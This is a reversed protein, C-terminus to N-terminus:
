QRSNKLHIDLEDFVEKVWNYTELISYDEELTFTRFDTNYEEVYKKLEEKDAVPHGNITVTNEEIRVVIEDPIVEPAESAPEQPEQAEQTGQAEQIGQAEQVEQTGESAGETSGVPQQGAAQVEGQTQVEEGAQSEQTETATPESVAQEATTGPMGALGFGGPNFRTFLFILGAVIVAPVGMKAPNRIMRRSSRDSSSSGRNLEKDAKNATSKKSSGKEGSSNPKSKKEGKESKMKVGEREGPSTGQLM